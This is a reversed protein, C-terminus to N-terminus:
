PYTNTVGLYSEPSVELTPFGHSCGSMDYVAANPCRLPLPPLSLIVSGHQKMVSPYGCSVSLCVSKGKAEYDKEGHLEMKSQM